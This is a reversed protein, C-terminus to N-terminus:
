PRRIIRQWFCSIGPISWGTERRSTPATRFAFRPTRTRHAPHAYRRHPPRFFARKFANVKDLVAPSPQPFWPMVDHEEYATYRRLLREEASCFVFWSIVAVRPHTTVPVRWSRRSGGERPPFHRIHHYGAILFNKAWDMPASYPMWETDDDFFTRYDGWDWVCRAGTRSCLRKASAIARTRNCLGSRPYVVLHELM